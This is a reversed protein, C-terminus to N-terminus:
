FKDMGAQAWRTEQLIPLPEKDWLDLSRHRSKAVLGM